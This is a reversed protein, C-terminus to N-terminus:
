VVCIGDVTKAVPHSTKGWPLVAVSIGSLALAIYPDLVSSLCLVVISRFSAVIYIYSQAYM